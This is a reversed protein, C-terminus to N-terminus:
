ISFCADVAATGVQIGNTLHLEDSVKAMNGAPSNIVLTIARVKNQAKWDNYIKAQLDSVDLIGDTIIIEDAKGEGGKTYTHWNEPVTRLPVCATTGGGLQMGLWDLLAKQDWNYPDLQVERAYPGDAFSLLVCRRKQHKAVWAMALAFAKAHELKHSENMSGSEDVCVVIPGKGKKEVGRYQRCMCQREVIRRMTDLEFDEDALKALEQPLLRSVDGDMEVGVMDDYGHITKLRQKAQASMRFKGALDLIMRLRGNNKVQNYLRTIQALDAKSNTPDGMGLGSCMDKLEDVQQQAAQLASNVAALCAMEANDKAVQPDKSRGTKPTQVAKEQERLLKGFECGLEMAALESALYNSRTEAHLAQYDSSELLNELFQQRLTDHCNQLEPAQHFVAAFMDTMIGYHDISCKDMVRHPGSRMMLMEGQEQDWSDVKFVHDTLESNDVEQGDIRLKWSDLGKETPVKASPKIDLMKLLDDHGM